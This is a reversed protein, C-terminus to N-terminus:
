NGRGGGRHRAFSPTGRRWHLRATSELKNNARRPNSGTMQTAATGRDLRVHTGRELDTGRFVISVMKALSSIMNDVTLKFKSHEPQRGLSPPHQM